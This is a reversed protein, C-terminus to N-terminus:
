HHVNGGNQRGVVLGKHEKGDFAVLVYTYNGPTLSPIRHNAVQYPKGTHHCHPTNSDLQWGSATEITNGQADLVAAGYAASGGGLERHINFWSLEGNAVVDFSFLARGNAPITVGKVLAEGPITPIKYSTDM